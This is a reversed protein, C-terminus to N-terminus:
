QLKRRPLYAAPLDSSTKAARRRSSTPRRARSASSRPTTASVICGAWTDSHSRVGLGCHLDADLGLPRHDGNAKDVDATERRERIAGGRALGHVEEVLEELQHHWDHRLVAAVRVLEQAVPQERHEARRLGKGVM